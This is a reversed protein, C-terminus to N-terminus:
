LCHCPEQFLVFFEFPTGTREDFQCGPGFGLFEEGGRRLRGRRTNDQADKVVAVEIVDFEQCQPEHCVV